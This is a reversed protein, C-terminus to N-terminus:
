RAYVSSKITEIASSNAHELLWVPSLAALSSAAVSSSFEATQKRPNQIPSGRKAHSLIPVPDSLVGM